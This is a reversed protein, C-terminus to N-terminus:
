TEFPLNQPEVLLGCMPTTTIFSKKRQTWWEHSPIAWLHDMKSWFHSSMAPKEVNWLPGFPDLITLRVTEVLQSWKQGM